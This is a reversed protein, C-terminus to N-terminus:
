KLFDVSYFQTLSWAQDLVPHKGEERPRMELEGVGGKLKDLRQALHEAQIGGDSVLDIFKSAVQEFEDVDALETVRSIPLVGADREHQWFHNALLAVVATIDVKAFVGIHRM